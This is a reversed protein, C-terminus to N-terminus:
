EDDDESLVTDLVGVHERYLTAMEDPQGVAMVRGQDMWAIRDCFQAMKGLGHSVIVITGAEALVDERSESSKRRFHEDGVSMLEDLLLIDPKQQIAVSFALRSFMGSSYTAVPREIAPGLESYEVIEEYM